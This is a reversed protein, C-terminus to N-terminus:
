RTGGRRTPLPGGAPGSAGMIWRPAITPRLTEACSESIAAIPLRRGITSRRKVDGAAGTLHRHATRTGGDDQSSLAGVAATHVAGDAAGGAVAVHGVSAAAASGASGIWSSGGTASNPQAASAETELHSPLPELPLGGGSIAAVATTASSGSVASADGGIAAGRMPPATASGGGDQIITGVLAALSPHQAILSTGVSHLVHQCSQVHQQFTSEIAEVASEMSAVRTNMATPDAEAALAPDDDAAGGCDGAVGGDHTAGTAAACTSASSSAAAVLAALPTPPTGFNGRRIRYLGSPDNARFHPHSFVMRADQLPDAPTARVFNYNHLQQTFSGLSAHKFFRPLVERALRSPDIILVSAGDDSWRVIDGGSETDSVMSYLKTLFPALRGERVADVRLADVSSSTPNPAAASGAMADLPTPGASAGGGEAATCDLGESARADAVASLLPMSPGASLQAGGSAVSRLLEHADVAYANAATPPPRAAPAMPAALSHPHEALAASAPSVAVPLMSPPQRSGVDSPLCPSAERSAHALEPAGVPPTPMQPREVAQTTASPAVPGGVAAYASEAAALRSGNAAGYVDCGSSSPLACAVASVGGAGSGGGRAAASFRSPDIRVVPPPPPMSHRAAEAAEGNIRRPRVHPLVAPPPLTEGCASPSMAQPAPLALGDGKVSPASTPGGQSAAPCEPIALLANLLRNGEEAIKTVRLVGALHESPQDGLHPCLLPQVILTNM